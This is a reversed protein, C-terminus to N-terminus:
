SKAAVLGESILRRLFSVIDRELRAPEVEFKQLLNSQIEEFRVPKKLLGWIEAGIADLGYYIGKEHNLIVAEGDLECSVQRKSQFLVSDKTITAM